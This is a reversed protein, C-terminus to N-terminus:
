AKGLATEAVALVARRGEDDDVRIREFDAAGPARIDAFLGAPDEHFHLFARSKLYFVGRGKESLGGMARLRGLVPELSDLAAPGAHKM